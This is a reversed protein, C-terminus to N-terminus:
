EEVFFYTTTASRNLSVSGNSYRLYYNSMKVKNSSFSINTSNSASLTLTPTGWGWWGSSQAYLYYTKGDAEYSLKKNNYKWVMDETIESTIQDNSVTVQVVSLKNNEHSLAYYNKNSYFTIVYANDEAIAAVKTYTLNELKEYYSHGCHCTYVM